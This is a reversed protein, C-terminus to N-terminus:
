CVKASFRTYNEIDIKAFKIDLYNHFLPNQLIPGLNGQAPPLNHPHLAHRRNFAINRSCWSHAKTNTNCVRGMTSRVVSWRHNIMGFNKATEKGEAATKKWNLKKNNHPRVPNRTIDRWLQAISTLQSMPESNNSNNNNDDNRLQQQQRRKPTTTTTTTTM